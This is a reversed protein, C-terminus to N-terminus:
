FHQKCRQSKCTVQSLKHRTKAYFMECCLSKKFGKPESRSCLKFSWLCGKGFFFQLGLLFHNWILVIRCQTFNTIGMIEATM